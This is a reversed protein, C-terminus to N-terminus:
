RESIETHASVQHSTTTARENTPQAPTREFLWVFEGAADDWSLRATWSKGSVGTAARARVSSVRLRCRHLKDYCRGIGRLSDTVSNAGVDITFNVSGPHYIRDTGYFALCRWYPCEKPPDNSGQNPVRSCLRQCTPALWIERPLEDSHTAALLYDRARLQAEAESIARAPANSLTQAPEPAFRPAVDVAEQQPAPRAPAPKTPRCSLLAFLAPLVVALHVRKLQM